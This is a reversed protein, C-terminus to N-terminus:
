VRAGVPARVGRVPRRGVHHVRPDAPCVHGFQTEHGAHDTHVDVDFAAKLVKEREHWDVETEVEVRDGVLRVLSTIRTRGSRPETRLADGDLSVDSRHRRHGEVPLLPGPGLRGVEGPPRPAAPAPERGRRAAAGRPREGQRAGGSSGATTWRSGCSAREGPRGTQNLALAALARADFGGLAAVGERAVPGANFVVDDSGDGALADLAAGIFTELRATLEDYSARAERHVWAISSGPLIDHFQLLLLIRWLAELEDAPTPALGRVAATASWLEAERLLHESRRNGSKMAAQSTYIGRHGELYLEGAWVPADAYEAEAAEFLGRRSSPSPRLARSPRPALPARLMERTPGGGGDGHGFPVLSRTAAGKDRFNRAAHALERGSLEATYTDVPPFHTFVRTGDIGEWWFTHHPFVNTTNWSIKQTLFWDCGAQRVIQPLAASYGFSDPLWVEDSTM